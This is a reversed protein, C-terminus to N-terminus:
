IEYGMQEIIPGLAENMFRFDSESVQRRWYEVREPDIEPPDEFQTEFGGQSAIKKLTESPAAALDELKLEFYRRKDFDLRPKLDLWRAYVGGVFQCADNINNPGWQQKSISYVVGRPDRKIHIFYSSPFLEWIFDLHLLNQPTKECWTTKQNMVTANLLLDDVFAGTLRILEDRNSFYRGEKVQMSPVEPRKKEGSEQFLNRIPQLLRRRKSVKGDVGMENDWYRAKHEFSTLDAIFQELRQWYYDGGLWAPLDIAAYPMRGFSALKSCMLNEFQYLAHRSLATSYNDTLAAVM